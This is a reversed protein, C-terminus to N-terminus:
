NEVKEKQDALFLGQGIAGQFVFLFGFLLLMVFMFDNRGRRGEGKRQGRQRRERGKGEQGPGTKSTHAIIVIFKGKTKWNRGGCSGM